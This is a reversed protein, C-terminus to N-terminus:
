FDFPYNFLHVAIQFRPLLPELVQDFAFGLWSVWLYSKLDFSKACEFSFIM